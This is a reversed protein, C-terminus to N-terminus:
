DLIGLRKAKEAAEHRSSVELKKYINKIYDSITHVSLNLERAIEKRKKSQNILHLIQVEKFSLKIAKNKGDSIEQETDEIMTAEIFTQNIHPFIIKFRTTGIRISDNHNLYTTDIRTENVFTGNTSNLDEIRVQIERPKGSTTLCTIQAHQGSVRTDDIPIDASKSRGIISKEKDLSIKHVIVKDILVALEVM